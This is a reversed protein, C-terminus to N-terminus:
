HTWRNYEIIEDIWEKCKHHNPLTSTVDYIIKEDTDNWMLVKVNADSHTIRAMQM